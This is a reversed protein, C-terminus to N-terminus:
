LAKIFVNVTTVPHMTNHRGSGGVPTTNFTEGSGLPLLNTKESGTASTDNASFQHAHSPMEGITLQHKEVGFKTGLPHDVAGGTGNNGAGLPSRGTFDPLNFTSSGDGPGYSTSIKAFLAAYTTRSVASGNCLLWNATPTTYAGMKLDGVVFTSGGTNTGSLADVLAQLEDIQDQLPNSASAGQVSNLEDATAVVAAELSTFQVLNSQKLLRIHDDGESIPDTAQPWNTNLNRWLGPAEVAM